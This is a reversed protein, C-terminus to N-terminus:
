SRTDRMHSRRDSDRARLTHRTPRSARLTVERHLRAAHQCSKEPGPLPCKELTGSPDRRRYDVVFTDIMLVCARLYGASEARDSEVGDSDPAWSSQPKAHSDADSCTRNCLRKR